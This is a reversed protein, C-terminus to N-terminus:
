QHGVDEVEQELMKIRQKMELCLLQIEDPIIENESLAVRERCCIKGTAHYIARGIGEISYGLENIRDVNLM